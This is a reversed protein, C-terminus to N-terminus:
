DGATDQKKRSKKGRESLKDDRFLKCHIDGEGPGAGWSGPM